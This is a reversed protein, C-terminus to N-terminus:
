LFKEGRLVQTDSVYAIINYKDFYDRALNELIKDAIEAGVLLELRINEGEWASVRGGEDGEGFAKQITYGKAGLKKVDEVLKTQLAEDAIITLLKLSVTKM